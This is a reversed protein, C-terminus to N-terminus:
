DANVGEISWATPVNGLNASQLVTAGNMLWIAVSGGSNRWLLDSKGDGNFDGIGFIGWAPPVNAVNATQLVTAGNMLWMAVNGTAGHRWLIDSKGDGNYDGTGNISWAVPVNGINAYQLVTVGNMLWIAVNGSGDRWLIDNKGDGNFDGTATFPWAVFPVNGLNATELVTAGNMLWMAVSGSNSRWLLDTKGDGNFDGTLAFPWAVFPVNGFNATQLVTAGNMLWMAVNGSSDRWLIDRQGDGNFNGTGVIRWGTPVIGLNATQLVTAGKMLWMALSGNTNRWLLDSNGDGNYDMRSTLRWGIDRFLQRELVPTHLPETYSPEMIQNPTAVTDWHSVSSGPQAPNPAFMRVHDGVKGATLLGNAARVNAGIWHLNGSDISAAVRQANTMSPYDPPAAGHRELNRMYADNFGLAKAGSALDVFTVFGLGHALEHVLVSVFDIKGAPPKSDLGYYWGSTPLCGAAGLNSNFNANIDDQTGDLDTKALSNALASAYWTGAVPAGAFDRFGNVPGASGLVASTANCSLPVFQAGVRIPVSSSVLAGWIDAAAQFAILRQAGLTAGTNGGVPAAPTQDNFGVGAANKNVVVVSAAHAFPPLVAGVLLGCTLSAIRLWDDRFQM